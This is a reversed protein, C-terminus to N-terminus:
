LHAAHDLFVDEGEGMEEEADQEAWEAVPMCEWKHRAKWDLAQCARSCYNVCGCAACRRFEHRRMEPRGCFAYSCLRLGPAPQHEAFWDVLFTNAAYPGPNSLQQQQQQQRGYELNLRGMDAQVSKYVLNVREYGGNTSVSTSLCCSAPSGREEGHEGDGGAVGEAAGEAAGGAVQGGSILEAADEGGSVSAAGEERGSAWGVAEGRGGSGTAVGGGEEGWVSVDHAGEAMEMERRCMLEEVEGEQPKEEEQERSQCQAMAANSRDDYDAMAANSRDDYDAMAGNSTDDDDSACSCGCCTWLQTSLSTAAAAEGGRERVPEEIGVAEDARGALCTGRVVGEEETISSGDNLPSPGCDAAGTERNRFSAPVAAATAAAEGEGEGERVPEEIGVAEDARGALSTGGVVGEEETISSGDNLPSRGCDAADTERNPFSAAVEAAASGGCAAASAQVGVGHSSFSATGGCDFLSRGCIMEMANAELLLRRGEMVNRAVGYGDQLCHGLERMAEVHGAAAAKSCLNVATTLNKATRDGGSSGNFHIISLSHLASAHNQLAAKMMLCRGARRNDLCYFEIMGLTYCAEANGADAARRLFAHAGSSWKHARVAMVDASASALVQPHMGAACFRRCTLMANILDSTSSAKASLATFISIIIDDPLSDIPSSNPQAALVSAVGHGSQTGRTVTREEQSSSLWFQYDDSCAVPGGLCLRKAAPGGASDLGHGRKDGGIRVCQRIGTM